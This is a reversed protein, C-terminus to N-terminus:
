QGSRGPYRNSSPVATLVILVASISGLVVLADFAASPMVDPRRGRLVLYSLVGDRAVYNGVFPNKPLRLYSAALWLATGSTLLATLAGSARWARRVIGIPGALM